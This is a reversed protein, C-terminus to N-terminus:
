PWISRLFFVVVRGVQHSWLFVVATRRQQLGMRIRNGSASRARSCTSKKSPTQPGDGAFTRSFSPVLADVRSFPGYRAASPRSRFFIWGLGSGRRYALRGRDPPFSRGGENSADSNGTRNPWLWRMALIAAVGAPLYVLTTFKALLALGVMVGLWLARKVNPKELWLTFALLAAPQAFAPAMDSYAISSFALITPLTTFLVISIVAAVNGFERKTWLFVVLTSLFLFPLVGLRALTLNHQFNGTHLIRNGVDLYNERAPDDPAYSPMRAGPCIFRFASVSDLLRLTTRIWGIREAILCNSLLQLTVLNM